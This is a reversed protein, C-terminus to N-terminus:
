IKGQLAANKAVLDNNKLYNSIFAASGAALIVLLIVGVAAVTIKSPKRSSEDTRGPMLHSQSANVETDSTNGDDDRLREMTKTDPGPSEKQM